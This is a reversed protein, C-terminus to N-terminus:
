PRRHTCAGGKHSAAPSAPRHRPVACRRQNPKTAPRPAAEPAARQGTQPAHTTFRHSQQDRARDGHRL